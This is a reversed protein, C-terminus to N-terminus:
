FRRFKTCNLEGYHKGKNVTRYVGSLPSVFAKWIHELSRVSSKNTFKEPTIENSQTRAVVSGLEATDQRYRSDSEATDQRDSLRFRCHGAYRLTQSHLTRDIGSLRVRYHGAYRLTQSQLTRSCM